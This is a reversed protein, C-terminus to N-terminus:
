GRVPQHRRVRGGFDDVCVDMAVSQPKQVIPFEQGQNIRSRHHQNPSARVRGLQYECVRGILVSERQISRGSYFDEPALGLANALDV